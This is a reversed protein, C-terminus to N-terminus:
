GRRSARRLRRLAALGIGFAALAPGLPAPAGSGAACSACGGSQPTNTGALQIRAAEEQVAPDEETEEGGASGGGGGDNAAAALRAREAAEERQAQEFEQQRAQERAVAVRQAEAAANQQAITMEQPDQTDQDSFEVRGSREAQLGVLEFNASAMEVHRVTLVVIYRNRPKFMPRTLTVNQLFATEDRSSLFVTMETVFIRSGREVDYFLLHAELDGPPSGFFSGVKFKWTRHDSEENIARAQHGRLFGRLGQESLRAPIPAQSLYIATRQAFAAPATLSVALLVMISLVLRSM